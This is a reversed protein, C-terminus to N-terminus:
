HEKIASLDVKIRRARWSNVGGLGISDIGEQCAKASKKEGETITLKKSPDQFIDPDLLPCLYVRTISGNPQMYKVEEGKIQLPPLFRIRYFDPYREGKIDFYPILYAQQLQQPQLPQDSPTSRNLNTCYKELEKPTLARIQLAEVTSALLGSREFDEKPTM